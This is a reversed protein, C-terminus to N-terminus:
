IAHRQSRWWGSLGSLQNAIRVAPALPRIRLTIITPSARLSNIAKHRYTSVPRTGVPALNSQDRSRFNWARGSAAPAPGPPSHGVIVHASTRRDSSHGRRRFTAGAALPISPRVPADEGAGGPYSTPIRMLACGICFANRGPRCTRSPSRRRAAGSGKRQAEAQSVPCHFHASTARINLNNVFSPSKM